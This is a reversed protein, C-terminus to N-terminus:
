ASETAHNPPKALGRMEVHKLKGVGRTHCLQRAAYNDMPLEIKQSGTGDGSQHADSGQTRRTGCAVRGRVVHTHVFGADLPSSSVYVEPGAGLRHRYLGEAVQPLAREPGPLDATLVHKPSCCTTTPQERTNLLDGNQSSSNSSLEM